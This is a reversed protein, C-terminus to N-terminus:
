RVKCHQRNWEWIQLTESDPDYLWYWGKARDELQVDWRTCQVQDGNQGQDFWDPPNVEPSPWNSPLDASKSATKKVSISSNKKTSVFNPDEMDSSMKALLSDYAASLLHLKRWVDYSDITSHSRFSIDDAGRPDFGAIGVASVYQDYTLNVAEEEGDPLWAGNLIAVFAVVILFCMGCIFAALATNGFIRRVAQLRRSQPLLLLLLAM